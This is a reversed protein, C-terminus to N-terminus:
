AMHQFPECRSLNIKGNEMVTVIAALDFRSREKLFVKKKNGCRVIPRWCAHIDRLPL